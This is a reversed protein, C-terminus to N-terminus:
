RVAQSARQQRLRPQQQQIFRQARQILLALRLNQRVENPQAVFGFHRHDIDAVIGVLHALKRRLHHHEFAAPDCRKAPHPTAM